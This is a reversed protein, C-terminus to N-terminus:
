VTNHLTSNVELSVAPRFSFNSINESYGLWNKQSKTGFHQRECPLGSSYIKM